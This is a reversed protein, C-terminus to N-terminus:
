GLLVRAGGSCCVPVVRAVDCQCCLEIACANNSRCARTKLPPTRPQPHATPTKLPPTRPQPHATPTLKQHTKRLLNLNPHSQLRRPSPKPNLNLTWTQTHNCAGPLPAPFTYSTLYSFFTYLTLHVLYPLALYPLTYIYLTLYPLTLCPIHTHPLTLDSLTYM